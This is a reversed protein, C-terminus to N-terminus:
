RLIFRTRKGKGNNKGIVHHFIRHILAHHLSYFLVSFDKVHTIKRSDGALPIIGNHRAAMRAALEHDVVASVIDTLARQKAIKGILPAAM